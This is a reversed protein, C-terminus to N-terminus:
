FDHRSWNLSNNYWDSYTTINETDYDEIQNVLYNLYFDYNFNGVLDSNPTTISGLERILLYEQFDAVQYKAIVDDLLDSLDNELSTRFGTVDGQTYQVYYVFVQKMSPKDTEEGYTDTVVYINDNDDDPDNENLIVEIEAYDGDTDNESKIFEIDFDSDSFIKSPM